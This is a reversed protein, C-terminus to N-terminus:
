VGQRGLSMIDGILKEADIHINIREICKELTSRRTAEQPDLLILVCYFMENVGDFVYTTEDRNFRCGEPLVSSKLLPPSADLELDVGSFVADCMADYEPTLRFDDMNASSAAVECFEWFFDSVNVCEESMCIVRHYERKNNVNTNNKLLSFLKTARRLPYRLRKTM